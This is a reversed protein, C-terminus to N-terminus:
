MVLCHATKIKPITFSFTSGKGPESALSLAGGNKEIFEKCIILGLGSGKENETGTTTYSSALNFLKKQENESIGTGTDWVSVRFCKEEEVMRVSVKGNKPTFKIANNLLNRLVTAMLNKDAMVKIGPHIDTELIIKKREATAYANNIENKVLDLIEFEGPSYIINGTQNKSWELLNELLLYLNASSKNIIDFYTFVQERSLNGSDEHLIETFGLLANFPNKLDHVIISFLKDKTSNLRVLDQETQALESARKELERNQALILPQLKKERYYLVLFVMILIILFLIGTHLLLM